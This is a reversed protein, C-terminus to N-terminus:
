RGSAKRAPRRAAKALAKTPVPLGVGRLVFQTVEACIKDRDLPQGPPCGTFFRVQLEYDAYHQTLAWIQFLM